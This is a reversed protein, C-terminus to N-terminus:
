IGGRLSPENSIALLSRQIKENQEILIRLREKVEEFEREKQQRRGVSGLPLVFTDNAAKREFFRVRMDLRVIYDVGSALLSAGDAAKVTLSMFTIDGPSATTVDAAFLDSKEIDRGVIDAINHYGRFHRSLPGSHIKETKSFEEGAYVFQGVGVGPDLNTHRNLFSLGIAGPNTMEIDYKYGIVRYTHYMAAFQTFGNAKNTPTVLDPSYASNTMWRVTAETAAADKLNGGLVWSLTTDMKEPWPNMRSGQKSPRTLPFQSIGDKIQMKSRAQKRWKRNVRKSM